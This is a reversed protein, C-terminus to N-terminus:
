QVGPTLRFSMSPNSKKINDATSSENFGPVFLHFNGGKEYLSYEKFNQILLDNQEKSFVTKSPNADVKANQQRTNIM